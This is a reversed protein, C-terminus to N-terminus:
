GTLGKWQRPVDTTKDEEPKIKSRSLPSVGFRASLKLFLEEADRKIKLWPSPQSYGTKTVIVKESTELRVTAERWDAYSRCLMELLEYDLHEVYNSTELEKLLRKWLKKAEPPLHKPAPKTM